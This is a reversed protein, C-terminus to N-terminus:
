LLTMERVQNSMTTAAALSLLIMTTARLSRTGMVKWHIPRSLWPSVPSQGGRNAFIAFGNDGLVVDSGSVNGVEVFDFARGAIVVNNGQSAVISDNAGISPNTSRIETLVGTADFIARGNDGVMIDDSSDSGGNVNDADSGAIVVDPGDGALIEDNGAFLAHTSEIERLLSAGNAVDFVARGHDGLIIDIGSDSGGDLEDDAVGGIVIDNDNGALIIDDGGAEPVTSTVEEVVLDAFDAIAHDGVLLDNGDDGRITDGEVGGIM